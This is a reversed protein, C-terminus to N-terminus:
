QSRVPRFYIHRFNWIGKTLQQGSLATMFVDSNFLQRWAAYQMIMFIVSLIITALLALQYKKTEDAKYCRKAWMMTGSSAMLILTTVYFLSPLQIPPTPQQVRSYIYSGTLALFLAVVAGLVLTLLINYPHYRYSRKYETNSSM